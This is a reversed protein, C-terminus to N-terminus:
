AGKGKNKKSFISSFLVVIIVIAVIAVIVIAVIKKFRSLQWGLIKLGGRADLREMTAMDGVPLLPAWYYPHLNQLEISSKKEMIYDFRANRLSRSKTEGEQLWWHFRESIETISVDNAKWLATVTARAGAYLFARSLSIVGEGKQLEGGAGECANLIVLETRPMRIAYVDLVYLVEEANNNLLICSQEGIKENSYAHSGIQVIRYEGVIEIFETVTIEQYAQSGNGYTNTLQAILDQNDLLEVFTGNFQLSDNDFLPHVGLLTNPNVQDLTGTAEQLSLGYRYSITYKNLLTNEVYTLPNLGLPNLLTDPLMDFALYALDGDPVIVVEETTFSKEVPAVLTAYIQYAPLLFDYDKDKISRRVTEISAKLANGDGDFALSPLKFFVLDNQSNAVFAYTNTEGVFYELYTQEDQLSAEIDAFSFDFNVQRAAAFAPYDRAIKRELKRRQQRLDLILDNVVQYESTNLVNKGGKLQLQFAEKEALTLRLGLEKEQEALEKPLIDTANAHAVADQLVLNRSRESFEFAKAAFDKEGTKDYLIWCTNIAAEFIPKARKALLGKSADPRYDSRMRDILQAIKNYVNLAKRFEGAAAYARALSTLYIRLGDKDAINGDKFDANEWGDPLLQNAAQQHYRISKQYDRELFAIDGLNEAVYHDIENNGSLNNALGLYYKAKEPQKLKTYILGLNNYNEIVIYNARSIQKAENIAKEASAKASVFDGKAMDLLATNQLVLPYLTSDTVREDQSLRKGKLLLKGAEEYQGVDKLIGGLEIHAIAYFNFATNKEESVVGGWYNILSRYSKIANDVDGSSSFVQAQSRLLNSRLGVLTDKHLQDLYRIGEDIFEIARFPEGQNTYWKGINRCGNAIDYILHPADINKRVELAELCFTLAKASAEEEGTDNHLVGLKDVVYAYGLPDERQDIRDLINDLKTIGETPEIVYDYWESYIVEAEKYLESKEFNQSQLATGVLLLFVVVLFRLSLLM